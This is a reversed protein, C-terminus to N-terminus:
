FLISLYFIVFETKNKFAQTKEAGKHILPVDLFHLFSLLQLISNQGRNWGAADKERTDFLVLQCIESLTRLCFCIAIDSM